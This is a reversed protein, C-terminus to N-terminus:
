RHALDAFYALFPSNPRHNCPLLKRQNIIRCLISGGQDAVSPSLTFLLSIFLLIIVGQISLRISKM